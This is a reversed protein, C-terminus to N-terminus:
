LSQKCIAEPAAVEPAIVKQVREAAAQGVSSGMIANVVKTKDAYLGASKLYRNTTSAQTHGLLAQAENSKGGALYVIEAAKHRLAHFGFPKVGARKCIATMFHRRLTFPDGPNVEIAEGTKPNKTVYHATQMFVNPVDLPRADKWWNLAATLEESITQWRERCAGGGGKRDTLRVRKNDLDVDNWTLRFLEGRRAGTQIYALLMVADQAGVQALVAAVDKDPPVYRDSHAVRFPKVKLFPSLRDPFGEVMDAGWNWAALLNKRYKNAVHGGRQDHVGTLFMHAVQPSIQDPTTISRELCYDAFDDLVAAKEKATKEAM